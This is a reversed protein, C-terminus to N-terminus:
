GLSDMIIISPVAGSLSGFPSELASTHKQLKVENEGSQRLKLGEKTKSLVISYIEHGRFDM